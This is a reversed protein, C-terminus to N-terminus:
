VLICIKERALCRQVFSVLADLNSINNLVIENNNEEENLNEQNYKKKPDVIKWTFYICGIRIISM